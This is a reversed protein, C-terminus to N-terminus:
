YPHTVAFYQKCHEMLRHQQYKAYLVGLETYIGVHARELGLGGELLSIMEDPFGYEEYHKILDELHDPHVIINMGAVAALKFEHAEVCAMCLEKWTKPSNAKKAADIAQQFQKLRVLCSAIKANNKISTFLIKASEFLKDDFCRDGVKQADVSNAGSIFVELESIKEIKAYAYALSNDINVDKVTERVMLLYKILNLFKGEQEAASIVTAYTSHDKAKIYSEIADAVQYQNLYAHGLKSWVEPMNVKDAYEAARQVDEINNLLVEIAEVHYNNKKYIVFAEEYLNYKEGLAIKAIEPGDYNDLRNIYDMVRTKDAKIATIILLNQLKKYQGFESNHLVIKELLAILENPLDAQMFAQVTTSVEEVNKSEPLAATVVQEIM